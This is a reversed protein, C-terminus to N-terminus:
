VGQDVGDTDVGMESVGIGRIRRLPGFDEASELRQAHPVDPITVM